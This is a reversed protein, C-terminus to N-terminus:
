KQNRGYDAETMGELMPALATAIDLPIPIITSTRQGAMEVAEDKKKGGV